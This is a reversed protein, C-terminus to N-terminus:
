VKSYTSYGLQRCVVAADTTGAGDDSVTGWVGSLFIEVRGQWSYGSGVLHIDGEKIDDGISIVSSYKCQMHLMCLTDACVNQM